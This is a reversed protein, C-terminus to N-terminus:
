KRFYREVKLIAEVADEAEEEGYNENVYLAFTRDRIGRAAPTDFDDALYERVWPWDRVVYMYHPNLGIGEARVAEAFAVKDCSLRSPDVVVPIIFPSDELSHHYPACIQSRERLRQYFELMFARRRRIIDPLRALSACGIACSIEDTHHNLAPFLFTTPDRDDFRDAWRPKGRDAYALLRHYLELDRTYVLGGSAGTIHAKRYMTSYAAIDGFTGVPQGNRCAGHSQSCDEIIPVGCRHAAEAIGDIPAAKGISHVVIAASVKSGLRSAFQEVGLNYSEAMSDALRPTLRNLIIASITGPDTIPSVLVESGTPLQLAAVAIYLALTGTAVADAYGGGLTRVFAATYLDEFHGQYGPDLARERYYRLAEGIMREEDRGLAFRPPMPKARLPQGGHIALTANTPRSPDNRTM